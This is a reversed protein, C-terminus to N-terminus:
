LSLLAFVKFVITEFKAPLASTANSYARLRVPGILM